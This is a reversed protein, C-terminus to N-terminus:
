NARAYSVKEFAAKKFKSRHLIDIDALYRRTHFAAESDDQSALHFLDDPNDIDCRTGPYQVVQCSANIATAHTRHWLFSEHGFGFQFDPVKSCLIGNTGRFHRDPALTVAPSKLKNHNNILKTVERASLLPLDAPIVMVDAIGEKYLRTVAAQVSSNLGRANLLSEPWLEVNSYESALREASPDDTVVVCRTLLPHGDLATLMDRIMAWALCHREGPDLISALRGKAQNFRKLPIVSWM